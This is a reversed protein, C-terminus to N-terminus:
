YVVIMRYFYRESTILNLDITPDRWWGEWKDVTTVYTATSPTFYPDTSRYIKYGQATPLIDWVLEIYTYSTDMQIVIPIEYVYPSITVAYEIETHIPGGQWDPPYAAPDPDNQGYFEGVLYPDITVPYGPLYWDGGPSPSGPLVQYFDHSVWRANNHFASGYSGIPPHGVTVQGPGGALANDFMPDSVAIWDGLTDVGAVTVFHGGIRVWQPPVTTQYEWFGLLLIVDQCKLVEARITDIGPQPITHEYLLSDYNIRVLLTDIADQMTFVNTGYHTTGTRHGDTDFVWALREVLEGWADSLIPPNQFGPTFAPMVPPPGTPPWVTATDNVNNYCHDDQLLGPNPGLNDLYDRVIPCLDYGDGPTGATDFKSDFWWLCNAVAV